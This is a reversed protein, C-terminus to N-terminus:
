YAKKNGTTKVHPLGIRYKKKRRITPLANRQRYVTIIEGEKSMVVVTGELRSAWGAPRDASPLDDRGLFYFTAGTRQICRGHTLVYDLADPKVNRRAARRAAHNTLIQSGNGPGNM